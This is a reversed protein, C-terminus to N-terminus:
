FLDALSRHHHTDISVEASMGASLPPDGPERHITVRVPMRQVVKVWNGSSNQAPLVSFEQDTAPAVSQVTGLWTRDPYADVTVTAPQGLRVYTLQTEKPEAAVWIDDTAVLGFAATGAPLFQGQQLKDVQTVVGNFPARVIAHNFERQAEALLAAAQRYAPMQAIPLDANGSLRALAAAVQANAAGLTATDAALKFKMDDFLQETVGREKVLTAYRDFNAQDAQVTAAQAATQRQARLYDAQLSRLTIETQALNAQANDLAIQFKDPDLRFLVQGATVHEGEHVPIQDVIGSVDTSVTLVNAQLYADDADVYRGGSLYYWLSGVILVAAGLAFLVYRLRKRRPSAPPQAAVAKDPPPAAQPAPAPQAPARPPAQPVAPEPRAPGPRIEAAVDAM